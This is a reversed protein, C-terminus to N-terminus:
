IVIKFQKNMMFFCLGASMKFYEHTHRDCGHLFQRDFQNYFRQGSEPIRYECEVSLGNATVTISIDPFPQCLGPQCLAAREVHLDIIFAEFAHVPNVFRFHVNKDRHFVQGTGSRIMRTGSGNGPCSRGGAGSIISAM